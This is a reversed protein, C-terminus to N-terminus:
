NLIEEKLIREPFMTCGQVFKWTHLSTRCKWHHHRTLFGPIFWYETKNCTIFITPNCRAHVTASIKKDWLRVSTQRCWLNSPIRLTLFNTKIQKQTWGRKESSTNVKKKNVSESLSLYEQTQKLWNKIGSFSHSSPNCHTSCNLIKTGMFSTTSGFLIFESPLKKQLGKKLTASWKHAIDNQRRSAGFNV